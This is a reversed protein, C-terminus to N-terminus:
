LNYCLCVNSIVFMYSLVMLREKVITTTLRRSSWELVITDKHVAKSSGEFSSRWSKCRSMRVTRIM